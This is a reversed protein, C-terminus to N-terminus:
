PLAATVPLLAAPLLLAHAEVADGARCGPLAVAVEREEGDALPVGEANNRQCGLRQYEVITVQLRPSVSSASSGIIGGVARVSRHCLFDPEDVAGLADLLQGQPRVYRNCGALDAGGHGPGVVRVSFPLGEGAVALPEDYLRGM